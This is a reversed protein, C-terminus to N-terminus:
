CSRAHRRGRRLGMSIMRCRMPFHRQTRQRDAAPHRREASGCGHFIRGAMVLAEKNALLVQKGARAAALTPRMGAAGVIAAMVTDCTALSPWERWRSSVPCCKPPLDPQAIETRLWEASAAELMVAYRPQFRRCQELMKRANNNATLAVVHFRDPHRAVVDLTNVGITGTSGLITLHRVTIM